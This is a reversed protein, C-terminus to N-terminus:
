SKHLQNQNTKFKRDKSKFIGKYIDGNDCFSTYFLPPENQPKKKGKQWSSFFIFYYSSKNTIITFFRWMTKLYKIRLIIRVPTVSLFLFFSLENLSEVVNLGTNLHGRKLLKGSGRPHLAPYLSGWSEEAHTIVIASKCKQRRERSQSDRSPLSQIQHM